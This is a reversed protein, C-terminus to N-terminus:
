FMLKSKNESMSMTLNISRSIRPSRLWHELLYASALLLYYSGDFSDDYRTHKSM